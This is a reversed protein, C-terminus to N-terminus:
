IDTEKGAHEVLHNLLYSAGYTGNDWFYVHRLRLM